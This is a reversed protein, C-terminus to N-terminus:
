RLISLFLMANYMNDYEDYEDDDCDNFLNLIYNIM